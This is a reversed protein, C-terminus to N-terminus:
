FGGFNISTYTTAGAPLDGVVGSLQEWNTSDDRPDTTSSGAFKRRYTQFNLLSIAAAYQAYSYGSVWPAAGAITAASLASAASDTAYKKASYGQGAEVEGSSKTAWLKASGTPVTTGVAHEKASYGQGAEVEAALETAWDQSLDASGASATASNYADLANDYVNEAVAEIEPVAHDKVWDAWATARPSFTARDARDPAVPSPTISPPVTQSM